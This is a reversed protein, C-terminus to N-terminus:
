SLGSCVPRSHTAAAAAPKIRLTSGGELQVDYRPPTYVRADTGRSCVGHVM